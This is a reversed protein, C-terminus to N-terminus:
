TMDADGIWNGDSGCEWGAFGECEEQPCPFFVKGPESKPFTFGPYNNPYPEEIECYIPIEPPPVNEMPVRCLASSSSREECMIKLTDQSLPKYDSVLRSNYDNAYLLTSNPFYECLYALDWTDHHLEGGIRLCAETVSEVTVNGTIPAPQYCTTEGKFIEKHAVKPCDTINERTTYRIKISPVVMRPCSSPLYNRTDEHSLSCEQKGNCRYNIDHIHTYSYCLRELQNNNLYIILYTIILIFKKTVAHTGLIDSSSTSVVDM